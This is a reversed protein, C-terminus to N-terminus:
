ERIEGFELAVGFLDYLGQSDNAFEYYSGESMWMGCSDTALAITLIEGTELQLDLLATFPCNPVGLTYTGATLMAELKELAQVDTLPFQKEGSRLTASRIGALQEPLVPGAPETSQPVTATTEAIVPAETLVPQEPVEKKCAALGLLCAFLVVACMKKM